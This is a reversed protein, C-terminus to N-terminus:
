YDILAAQRDKAPSVGFCRKYERSFQSFSVYGVMNAAQYAKEGQQQILEKARHLRTTKLYQLPSSSTVERFKSHFASISMGAEKALTQMDLPQSYKEHIISVIRSIQFLSRNSFALEKLVDGHEGTIIKFIIEKVCMPGLIRSEKESKLARLLRIAADVLDPSMPAQYLGLSAQQGMPPASGMESLIEGIVQPDLKIVIGLLPEGPKIIAECIVPLPVTLVFYNNADYTYRRDGLYVNKRGQALIIIEPKYLLPKPQYANERRVLNVGNIKTELNMDVPLLEMLLDKMTAIGSNM